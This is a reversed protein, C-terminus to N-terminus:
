RRGSGVKHRERWRAVRHADRHAPCCYDQQTQTPIFWKGCASYPCVKWRSGFLAYAYAAPVPDDCFLAPMSRTGSLWLVLHVNDKLVGSMEAAFLRVADDTQYRVTLANIEDTLDGCHVMHYVEDELSGEPYISALKKRQKFTGMAKSWRKALKHEYAAAACLKDRASKIDEQQKRAIATQLLRLAVFRQTGSNGMLEQAYRFDADKFRRVPLSLPRRSLVADGLPPSLLLAEGEEDGKKMCRILIPLSVAHPGTQTKM